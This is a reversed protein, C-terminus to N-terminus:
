HWAGCSCPGSLVDCNCGGNKGLPTYKSHAEVISPDLARGITACATLSELDRHVHDLPNKRIDDIVAIRTGLTM